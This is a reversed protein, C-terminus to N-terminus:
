TERGELLFHGAIKLFVSQKELFAFHGAGEEIVLGADPILEEMRRGMWLPTETDNAGWYLLTPALVSPLIDTLDQTIVKNFTQRMEPTLARYDASGFHQVLDEKWKEPWKGLWQKEELFDLAKRAKRYVM